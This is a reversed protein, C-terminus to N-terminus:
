TPIFEAPKLERRVHTGHLGGGLHSCQGILDLIEKLIM